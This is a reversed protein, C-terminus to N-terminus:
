YIKWIGPTVLEVLNQDPDRFYLSEGGRQWHVRSEIPIANAALHVEWRALDSAAISFALHLRGAGDHGGIVGGPVPNPENSAGRKFLLLVQKDAVNLACLREDSFIVEFDFLERYFRGARWLDEVYLATEFVGSVAPGSEGSESIRANLRPFMTDLDEETWEPGTLEKPVRKRSPIESGTKAEYAESAVYLLDECEAQGEDMLASDVEALTEPNRLANEFVTEGQAILWGRFYEFGDDSCGGNILYAAAWLDNRYSQALLEDLIRDFAIIEKAPLAALASILSEVQGECEGESTAKAAEIMRWFQAKEM